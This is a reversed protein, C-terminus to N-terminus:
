QIQAFCEEITEMAILSCAGLTTHTALDLLPVGAFTDQQTQDDVSFKM